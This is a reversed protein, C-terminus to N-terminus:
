KAMETVKQKAMNAGKNIINRAPKYMTVVVAGILTGAILGFMMSGKM